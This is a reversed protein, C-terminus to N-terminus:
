ETRRKLTPNALLQDSNLTKCVKSRHSDTRGPQGIQPKVAVQLNLSRTWGYSLFPVLRNGSGRDMRSLLSVLADATGVDVMPVEKNAELLEEIGSRISNDKRPPVHTQVPELARDNSSESEDSSIEEVAAVREEPSSRRIPALSFTTDTTRERGTEPVPSPSRGGSQSVRTVPLKHSPFKSAAPDNSRM